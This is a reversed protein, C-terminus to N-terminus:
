SGQTWGRQKGVLAELGEPFYLYERVEVWELLTIRNNKVTVVGDPPLMGRHDQPSYKHLRQAGAIDVM